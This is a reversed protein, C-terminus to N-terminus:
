CPVHCPTKPLLTFIPSHKYQSGTNSRCLDAMTHNLKCTRMDQLVEHYTTYLIAIKIPYNSLWVGLTYCHVATESNSPSMLVARVPTRFVYRTNVLQSGLGETSTGRSQTHEPLLTLKSTLKYQSGTNSRCLDAMTHNLKRQCAKVVGWSLPIYM